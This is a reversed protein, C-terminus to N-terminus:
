DHRAAEMAKLIRARDISISGHPTTMEICGPTMNWVMQAKLRRANDPPIGLKQLANITLVEWVMDETYECDKGRGVNVGEPIGMRQWQKLRSAITAPKDDLNLSGLIALLEKYRYTTM